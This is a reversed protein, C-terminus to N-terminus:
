RSWKNIENSFLNYVSKIYFVFMFFDRTVKKAKILEILHSSNRFMIGPFPTLESCFAVWGVNVHSFKSWFEVYIM